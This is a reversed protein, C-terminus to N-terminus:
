EPLRVHFDIVDSYITVGADIVTAVGNKNGIIEGEPQRYISVIM